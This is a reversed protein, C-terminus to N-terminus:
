QRTGAQALGHHLEVIATRYDPDLRRPRLVERAQDPDLAEFAAMWREITEAPVDPHFQLLIAAAYPRRMDIARLLVTLGTRAPDTVIDSVEAYDLGARVALAAIFLTLRGREFADSILDDYAADRAHLCQMLLMARSEVAAAEDHTALWRDVAAAIRRDCQAPEIDPRSLLCRRLSAAVLWVIRRVLDAPLDDAVLLPEQFQGIRHHEAISLATAAEVIAADASEKLRELPDPASSASRAEAVHHADARRLAAAVLAPDRNMGVHSLIPAALPEQGAILAEAEPPFALDAEDILNERLQTEVAAIFGDILGVVTSHQHDSLRAHVPLSLVAVAAAIRERAGEGARRAQVVLMDASVPSDKADTM